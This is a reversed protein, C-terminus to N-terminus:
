TRENKGPYSKFFELVVLYLFFLFPFVFILNNFFTITLMPDSDLTAGRIMLYTFICGGLINDKVIYPFVNRIFALLLGIAYSFIISGFFGYYILGFINHRANPGQPIDSPHHINKFTYGIAEPLKNWEVIRLLGLTDNFLAMFGHEGSVKLYVDNPYAYWYIDGSHIFRLCLAFFPNLGGDAPDAERVNTQVYIITCAFILCVVVLSKINKKILNIYILYDRGKIKAFVMYCWVINFLVFFGGKSGSLLYTIFMLILLFYQPIARARFKDLKVISFFLYVSIISSIDVIRGLFGTGGGSAFTELRSKMFIPIGKLYYIIGIFVLYTITFFYFGIIKSSYNKDPKFNKNKIIEFSLKKFSFTYLGLFFAIQTLTYSAIEYNSVNDTFYLLFVDAACFVSSIVSLFYPDLISKVHARFILYHLIFSIFILSVFLTVNNLVVEYFEYNNM